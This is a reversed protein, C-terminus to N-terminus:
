PGLCLSLCASLRRQPRPHETGTETCGKRPELVSRDMETMREQRGELNSTGAVRQQRVSRLSSSSRERCLSLLLDSPSKM